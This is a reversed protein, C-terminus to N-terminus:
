LYHHEKVWAVAQKLLSESNSINGKDAQGIIDVMLDDLEKSLVHQSPARLRRVNEVAEDVKHSRLSIDILTWLGHWHFAYRPHWLAAAKKSLTKAKAFDNQKWALWGLNAFASATFSGQGERESIVLMQESYQRCEELNGARRHAVALYTICYTQQDLYGIQTSLRLGEELHKIALDINGILLQVFGYGFQTRSQLELDTGKLSLELALTSYEIIKEDAQYGNSNFYLTPLLFYYEALMDTEGLREVVPRVVEFVEQMGAINYSDHIMWIQDFQVKLRTQWWEINEEGPPIGLEK